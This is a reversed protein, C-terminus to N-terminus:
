HNSGNGASQRSSKWFLWPMIVVRTSLRASPVNWIRLRMVSFPLSPPAKPFPSVTSRETKFPRRRSSSKQGDRDTRPELVHLAAVSSKALCRFVSNTPRVAVTLLPPTFSAQSVWTVTAAGFGEDSRSTLIYVGNTFMRLAHKKDTVNM